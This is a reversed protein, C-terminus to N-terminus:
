DLNIMDNVAGGKISSIFSVLRGKYFILEYQLDAILQFKQGM